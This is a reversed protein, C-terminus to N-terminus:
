LGAEKCIESIKGLSVHRVQGKSNRYTAHERIQRYSLGNKRNQIIDEIVVDPIDPRGWKEGSHNKYAKKVRDSRKNSEEEGMHGFVQVLIGLLIENWPQPVEEIAKFYSQRYSYLSVNKVICLRWFEVLSLRDRYLRDTDWFTLTEVEGRLIADRIRKFEPRQALNDSWASQKEVVIFPDDVPCVDMCESLQHQENQKDTSVRLYVIHNSLLKNKEKITNSM